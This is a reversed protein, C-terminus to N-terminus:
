KWLNDGKLLLVCWFVISIQLVVTRTNRRVAIITGVVRTRSKRDLRFLLYFM